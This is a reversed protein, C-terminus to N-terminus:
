SQAAVVKVSTISRIIYLVERGSSDKGTSQTQLARLVISAAATTPVQQDAASNFSDGRSNHHQKISVSDILFM